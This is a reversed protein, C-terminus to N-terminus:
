ACDLWDLWDFCLLGFLGFCALLYWSGQLRQESFSFARTAGTRTSALVRLNRM